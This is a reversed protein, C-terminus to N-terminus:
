AAASRATRCGGERALCAAVERDDIRYAEIAPLLQELVDIGQHTLPFTMTLPRHAPCWSEEGPGAPFPYSILFTDPREEDIGLLTPYVHQEGVLDTVSSEYTWDSNIRRWDPLMPVASDAQRLAIVVHLDPMWGRSHMLENLRAQPTPQDPPQPADTRMTQTM